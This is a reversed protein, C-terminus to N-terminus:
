FFSVKYSCSDAGKSRCDGPEHRVTIMQGSAKFKKIVADIIGFDFKCPYPNNCIMHMTKNDIKKLQYHGIGEKMQGTSPNFLISSGIRHNMHYAIDISGLADEVTKVQPPWQANEPISNGIKQLTAEGVKDAIQKFADLWLQQPYWNGPIPNVIQNDALIKIATTKFIPMGELVSLVTEGNVEVNSNFAVYVSM